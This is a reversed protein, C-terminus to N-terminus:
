GRGPARCAACARRPLRPRDRPPRPRAHLPGRRRLVAPLQLPAHLTKSPERRDHRDAARRRAHGLTLVSLVQTQGRTFLGSGHVRLYVAICDIQRIDTTRRGDARDGEDPDHRPADEKDASEPRRIHKGPLSSKPAHVRHAARGQGGARRGYPRAQRPQSLAGESRAVPPSSASASRRPSENVTIEM